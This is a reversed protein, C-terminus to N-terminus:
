RENRMDLSLTLLAVTLQLLYVAIAYSHLLLVRILLDSHGLLWFGAAFLLLL